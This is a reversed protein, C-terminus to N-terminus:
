LVQEERSLDVDHKVDLIAKKVKLNSLEQSNLMVKCLNNKSDVCIIGAIKNYRNHIILFLITIFIGILIGLIFYLLKIYILNM